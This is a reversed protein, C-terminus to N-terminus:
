KKLGNKKLFHISLKESFYLKLIGEPHNLFRKTKSYEAIKQVESLQNLLTEKM